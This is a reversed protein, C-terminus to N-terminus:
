PQPPRVTNSDYIKLMTENLKENGKKVIKAIDKPLDHMAVVGDIIERGEYIRGIENITPAVFNNVYKRGLESLIGM